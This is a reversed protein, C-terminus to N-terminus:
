KITLVFKAVGTTNDNAFIKIRMDLLHFRDAQVGNTIPINSSDIHIEMWNVGDNSGEITYLPTGDLGAPTVAVSWGLAFTLASNNTDSLVSDTTVDSTVDILESTGVTFTHQRLAM